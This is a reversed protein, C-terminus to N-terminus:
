PFQLVIPGPAPLGDTHTDLRDFRSQRGATRRNGITGDLCAAGQDDIDVGYQHV